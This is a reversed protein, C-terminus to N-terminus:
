GQNRRYDPRYTPVARDSPETPYWRGTGPQYLKRVTSGPMLSITRFDAATKVEGSDIVSMAYDGPTTMVASQPVYYVNIVKIRYEGFVSSFNMDQFLLDSGIDDVFSRDSDVTVYSRFWCNARFSNLSLPPPMRSMRLTPERNTRGRRVAKTKRNKLGKGRGRPNSAPTKSPHPKTNM